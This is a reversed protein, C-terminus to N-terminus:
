SSAAQLVFVAPRGALAVREGRWQAVQLTRISESELTLDAAICLRTDPRCAELLAQLLRENRYPTEIVLQAGHGARSCAELERIAHLRAAREVPLYGHFCFRQGDLGSAMLALLLASPGVLPVVRVAENHALAVLAAGPDAIAPCGAESLLGVDLGARVPALLEAIRAPPTHENLEVIPTQALPRPHGIAKLFARASKASEAVFADLARIRAQVDHPIAGAVPAAGLLTPVLYLTGARAPPSDSL